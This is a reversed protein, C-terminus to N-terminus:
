LSELGEYGMPCTQPSPMHFVKVEGYLLGHSAKYVCLLSSTYQIQRVQGELLECDQPVWVLGM